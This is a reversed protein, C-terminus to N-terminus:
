KLRSRRRASRQLGNLGPDVPDEDRGAVRIREITRDLTYQGAGPLTAGHTLDSCPLYAFAMGCPTIGFRQQVYIVVNKTPALSPSGKWPPQFSLQLIFRKM